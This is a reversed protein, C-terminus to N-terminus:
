EFRRIVDGFAEVREPGDNGTLTVCARSVGLTALVRFRQEHEDTTGARNAEAFAEASRNGPGLREVIGTLERGTRAHVLPWLVTM